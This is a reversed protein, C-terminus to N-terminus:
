TNMGAAAREGLMICTLNTPTSTMAPMVSADVVRLGAMGHVRLRDDVVSGGDPDPGMRATGAAHWQPTAFKLVSRRLMADDSMMRDTWLLVRQLLEAVPEARVVSWITRAGHMLRDVDAPASLLGLEIVPPSLPDADQVHVRGQSDPRLLVAAVTVGVAGGLISGILPVTATPVNNLLSVSLEPQAGPDAGPMGIRALASHLPEGEKCIGPKPVGWVSVAAHDLLHEGVGPLHLVAEIGLAALRGTDGIGSRELILPTNVAGASLTCREAAVQRLEGDELFEVGVARHGATLVRVAHCGARVTLNPRHRAAALYTEATSMRRGGVWNIPLPGVGCRPADNLDAVDPLGILRCAHVFATAMPDFDTDRRIPLPGAQGHAPGTFDADTELRTFYPLVDAWTWDPNGAAAWGAFDAPWSRLAIAGNVASSGGIVKGIRYPHRRDPEAISTLYADYEWNAGDLVMAGTPEAYAPPGLRDAGAELLLVRRDPNQSLRSALVSGASGAGVIVDDWREAAQEASM